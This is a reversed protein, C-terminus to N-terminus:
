RHNSLEAICDQKACHKPGVCIGDVVVMKVPAALSNDNSAPVASTSPLPADTHEPSPPEPAEVDDNMGVLNTSNPQNATIRDATDKYPHTCESCAHGEAAQIKGNEGLLEFAQETVQDISLNHDVEFDVQSKTAITRVSEAIFAQWIHRYGIDSLETTQSRWFVNNCFSVYASTSAHFEVM